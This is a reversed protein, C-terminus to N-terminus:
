RDMSIPLMLRPFVRRNWVKVISGLDHCWRRTMEMACVLGSADMEEPSVHTQLADDASPVV